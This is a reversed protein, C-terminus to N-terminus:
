PMITATPAPRPTAQPPEGGTTPPEAPTPVEDLQLRGRVTAVVDAPIWPMGKADTGALPGLVPLPLSRQDTVLGYLVGLGTQGVFPSGAVAALGQGLVGAAVVPPRLVVGRHERVLGLYRLETEYLEELTFSDNRFDRFRDGAMLDKWQAFATQYTEIAREPEAARRLKDAEFLLKRTQVTREDREFDARYYHHAFNTMNLNQMRFALQRHARLSETMAPDLDDARFGFAPDGPAIDYRKRFAGALEELRLEENKDLYIGTVIGDDRWMQFAREWADKSWKVGQGVVVTRDRFWRSLGSRNADITWGGDDFWGEKQLREGVFRDRICM